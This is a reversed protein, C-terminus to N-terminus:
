SLPDATRAATGKGVLALYLDELTLASEALPATGLRAQWDDRTEEHDVLVRARDGSRAILRVGPEAPWEVGAPVAIDLQTFRETLSGLDACLRLRGGDLLAVRDAFRELEALQHTAIVITRRDTQM